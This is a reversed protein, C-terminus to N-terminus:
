NVELPSHSAQYFLLKLQVDVFYFAACNDIRGVLPSTSLTKVANKDLKSFIRYRPWKTTQGNLFGAEQEAFSQIHAKELHCDM